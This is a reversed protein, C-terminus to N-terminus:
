ATKICKQENKIDNNHYYENVFYTYNLNECKVIKYKMSNLRTTTQGPPCHYLMKVVAYM